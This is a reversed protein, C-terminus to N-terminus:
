ILRLTRKQNMWEEGEELALAILFHVGDKEQCGFKSEECGEFCDAYAAYYADLAQLNDSHFGMKEFVKPYKMYISSAVNKNLHKEVWNCSISGGESEIRLLSLLFIKIGNPTLGDM